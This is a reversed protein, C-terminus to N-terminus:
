NETDEEFDDFERPPRPPIYGYARLIIKIAFTFPILSILSLILYDQITQINEQELVNSIFLLTNVIIVLGMFVRTYRGYVEDKYKGGRKYSM